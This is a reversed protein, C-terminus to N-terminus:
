SHAADSQLKMADKRTFAECGIAQPNERFATQRDKQVKNQKNYKLSPANRMTMKISPADGVDRSKLHPLRYAEVQPNKNEPVGLEEIERSHRTRWEQIFWLLRCGGGESQRFGWDGVFM